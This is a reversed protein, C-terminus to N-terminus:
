PQPECACRVAVYETNPLIFKRVEIEARRAPFETALMQAMEAALTEILQRPREAAVEALRRSAADYDVTHAIDDNLEHFAALPEIRANILLRQPTAREEEPVGIRAFVELGQILIMNM